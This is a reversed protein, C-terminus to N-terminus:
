AVPARWTEWLLLTAFHRGTQTKSAWAFNTSVALRQTGSPFEAQFLSPPLLLFLSLSIISMLPALNRLFQDM